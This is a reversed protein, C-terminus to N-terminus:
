GMLIHDRIKKRTTAQRDAAKHLSTDASKRAKAEVPSLDKSRNSRRCVAGDRISDMSVGALRVPLYRGSHLSVGPHKARGESPGIIHNM